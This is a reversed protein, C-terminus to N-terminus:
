RYNGLHLLDGFLVVLCQRRESVIEDQDIGTEVRQGERHQDNPEFAFQADIREGGGLIELKGHGQAVKHGGIFIGGLGSCRLAVSASQSSASSFGCSQTKQPACAWRERLARTWPDASPPRRASNAPRETRM